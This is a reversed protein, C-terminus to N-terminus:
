CYFGYAFVCTRQIFESVLRKLDHERKRYSMYKNLWRLLWNAVISATENMQRVNQENYKYGHSTLEHLVIKRLLDHADSKLIHMNVFFPIWDVDTIEVGKYVSKLDPLWNAGTQLNSFNNLFCCACIPLLLRAERQFKIPVFCHGTNVRYCSSCIHMLEEFKPKLLTLLRPRVYTHMYRIGCCFLHLWDIPDLWDEHMAMYYWIDIPICTLPHDHDVSTIRPKKLFFQM